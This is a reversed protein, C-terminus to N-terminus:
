TLVEILPLGRATKFTSHHQGEISFKRGVMETDHACTLVTVRDNILLGETGVVPLRLELAGLRVSAQGVSSPGGVHKAVADTQKFRCAGLYVQAWQKTVGGTLPNTDVAVSREIRCTDVLEGILFQRGRALVSDRSM